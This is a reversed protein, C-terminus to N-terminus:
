EDNRFRFAFAKICPFALIVELSFRTWTVVNMHSLPLPKLGAMSAWM